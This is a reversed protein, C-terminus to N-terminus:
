DKEQPGWGRIRDRIAEKVNEPLKAVSVRKFGAKADGQPYISYLFGLDGLQGAYQNVAMNGTYSPGVSDSMGFVDADDIVITYRDLAKGGDDFAVVTHGLIQEEKWARM